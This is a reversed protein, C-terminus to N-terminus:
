MTGFISGLKKELAEGFLDKAIIKGSPDILLNQPIAQIGYLKAADNDWFKLDSVHNWALGDKHIAKLWNEKKGPRDLSVSLITFNKGKYTNFAKVVNPNEARCPGCWSAWFDLLVYKGKFSSLSVMTGNTDPQAFDPAMAGVSVSKIVDLYKKYKVGANSARLKPSLKEFEPALQAYDPYPGGMGRLAQLSMYSDPNSQIYLSDLAREKVAISDEKKDIYDNFEKTRKEKPTAEYEADLANNANTISKTYVTFKQNDENVRTGTVKAKSLSDASKVETTGSVLYITLIDPSTRSMNQMGVGKYDVILTARAIDTVYGAFGFEGKKIASSDTITAIGERYMLFVKAPADISGLKGKIVFNEQAFLLSPATVLVLLILKKM